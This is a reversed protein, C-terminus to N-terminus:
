VLWTDGSDKRSYQPKDSGADYYAVEMGGRGEGHRGSEWRRARAAELLEELTASM